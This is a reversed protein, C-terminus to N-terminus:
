NKKIIPKQVMVSLPLVKFSNHQFTIELINGKGKNMQVPTIQCEYDNAASPATISFRGENKLLIKNLSIAEYWQETAANEAVEKPLKINVDYVPFAAETPIDVNLRVVYKNKGRTRDTVPLAFVRRYDAPKTIWKSTWPDCESIRQKIKKDDGKYRKGHAVIARAKFVGNDNPQSIFKDYLLTIAKAPFEYEKTRALHAVLEAKRQLLEKKSGSSFTVDYVPLFVSDDYLSDVNDLVGINEELFKNIRARSVRDIKIYLSDELEDVIANKTALIEAPNLFNIDDNLKRLLQESLPWNLNNLATEINKGQEEISMKDLPRYNKTLFDLHMKQKLIGLMSSYDKQAKLINLEVVISEAEQYQSLSKDANSSLTAIETNLNTACRYTLYKGFNQDLQQPLASKVQSAKKVIGKYFDDAPMQTQQHILDRIAALSDKQAMVTASKLDFEKVFKSLTLYEAPTALGASQYLNGIKHLQETLYLQSDFPKADDKGSLRQDYFPIIENLRGGIVSQAESVITSPFREKKEFFAIFDDVGKVLEGPNGRCAYEKGFFKLVAFYNSQFEM